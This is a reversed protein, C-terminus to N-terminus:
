FFFSFFEEFRDWHRVLETGATALLALSAAGVLHKWGVGLFTLVLCFAGMMGAGQWGRGFAWVLAMFGATWALNTAPLGARQLVRLFRNAPVAEGPAPALLTPAPMAEEEAARALLEALIPSHPSSSPAPAEAVAAPAKVVGAEEEDPELELPYAVPAPRALAQLDVPSEDDEEVEIPSSVRTRVSPPKREPEEEFVKATM